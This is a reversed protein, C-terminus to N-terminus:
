SRLSPPRVHRRQNNGFVIVGLELACGQVGDGGGGLDSAIHMHQNGAGVRAGHGILGRLGSAHGLHQQGVRRLQSVAQGLVHRGLHQSHRRAVAVDQERGGGRALVHGRADRGLEVHGLDGVDDAHFRGIGELARDVGAVGDGGHLRGIGDLDDGNARGAKVGDRRLATRTRHFLDGSDGIRAQGREHAAFDGLAVTRFQRARAYHYRTAATQAAGLVELDQIGQGVLQAGGQASRAGRDIGAVRRVIPLDALRALDDRRM